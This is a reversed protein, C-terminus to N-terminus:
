NNLDASKEEFFLDLQRKLWSEKQTKKSRKQNAVPENIKNNLKEIEPQQEDDKLEDSIFLGENEVVFEIKEEPM